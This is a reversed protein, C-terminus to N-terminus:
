WKNELYDIKDILEKIKTEYKDEIEKLKNEYKDNITKLKLEMKNELINIIQENEDEIKLLKIKDNIFDYDNNNDFLRITKNNFYLKIKNIIEDSLIKTKIKDEMILDDNLLYSKGNLNIYGGSCRIINSTDDIFNIDFFKYLDSQNSNSNLNHFLLNTFSCNNWSSYQISSNSIKYFIIIKFNNKILFDYYQKFHQFGYLHLRPIYINTNLKMLKFLIEHNFISRINDKLDLNSLYNKIFNIQKENLVLDNLTININENQMSPNLSYTYYNFCNDLIQTSNNLSYSYIIYNDKPIIFRSKIKNFIVEEM